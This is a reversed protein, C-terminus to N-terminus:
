HGCKHLRNVTLEAEMTERKGGIVKATKRVVPLRPGYVILDYEGPALGDFFAQEKTSGIWAGANTVYVVCALKEDEDCSLDYIAAANLTLTSTGGAPVTIDVIGPSQGGGRTVGVVEDERPVAVFTLAAPRSNTIEISVSQAGGLSLAVQPHDLETKGAVLKAVRPGSGGSCLVVVDAVAEYKVRTYAYGSEVSEEEVSYEIQVRKTKPGSVGEKPTARLSVVIQGKGPQPDPFSPGSACASLALVSMAALAVCYFNSTARSM